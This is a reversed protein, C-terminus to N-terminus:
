VQQVTLKGGAGPEWGEWRSCPPKDRPTRATVSGGKSVPTESLGVARCGPPQVGTQARFGEVGSSYVGSLAQLYGALM